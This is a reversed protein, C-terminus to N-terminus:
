VRTFGGDIAINQGSIFTNEESALWLVFKAVEEVSGLRNLPVKSLIGIIESETLNKHTLETDIFGPSVCNAIIGNSAHEAALSTTLGDIGFKSVSYAARGSMSVKGWISSINIIRGWQKKVMSPIAAQCLLLPACTNVQQIEMFTNLDIDVFASNTNIGACNVLIDPAFKSLSRACERIKELDRFDAHVWHDCFAEKRESSTSVGIVYGGEAKFSQAIKKGIGRSAGTIFITKNNFRM